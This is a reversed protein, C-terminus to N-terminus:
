KAKISDRSNQYAPQVKSSASLPSPTREIERSEAISRSFHSRSGYRRGHVRIFSM